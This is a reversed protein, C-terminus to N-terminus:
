IKYIPHVEIPLDAFRAVMGPIEPAVFGWRKVFAAAKEYDGEMQLKLFEESLAIMATLAKEPDIDFIGNAEDYRVAGRDKLWNYEILSGASHAETYSARWGVVLSAIEYIACGELEERSVLGDKSLRDLLAVGLMDAKAEELMLHLDKLLAEFSVERGNVNRTGPGVGHALEHGLVFLMRQRWECRKFAEPSLLREAIPHTLTYFKAEMMTRSFVKKSGKEEHIKRNNPLNYAVFQRGFAAEGGRYVDRVIELPTAGGKPKYGLRAALAADFEPVVAAFKQIDATAEADPLAVFGEFTAKLGFLGDAYVEYPGITVEFPTGDTDIWAMDSDWYDNSRFAAARLALFKKLPGDSLARAAAELERAAEELHDKYAESYPVAILAGPTGDAAGAARKIITYPSELAARDEASAGALRTEWEEVTMDAPYFAGAKPKAAAGPVFPKDEDFGDWPGGNVEFYKALDRGENDTRAALSARMGPLSPDMQELYIDTM